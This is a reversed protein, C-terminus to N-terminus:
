RSHAPEWGQEHRMRSIEIRKYPTDTMTNGLGELRLFQGTGAQSPASSSDSLPFEVNTEVIQTVEVPVEIQRVTEVEGSRTVEVLVRVTETSGM